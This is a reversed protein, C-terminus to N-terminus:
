RRIFSTLSKMLNVFNIIKFANLLFAYGMIFFLITMLKALSNGIFFGSVYTIIGVIIVSIFGIKFPLLLEKFYIRGLVKRSFYFNIFFSIFSTFVFGYMLLFIDQQIIGLAITISQIIKKSVELILIQKTKNFVKFIVRNMMEQIYFFSAVSLIKIYFVSGLWEEGYLLLIIDKAFVFVFSVMIGVAVAYYLAIKNFTQIFNEKECQLRALSSFGAGNISSITINNPVDQLRKAQFFYGVQSISFFKGLILSYINDFVSNLLSAFTTNVGFSYLERLSDKSFNLKGIPGEFYWLMSVIFFSTLIQIIIISWVGAGNFAFYIGIISAFFVAIFNYFSKKKFELKKELKANQTIQFSNVVFILSSVKIMRELLPDEYFVAIHASFFFFTLFLFLSVCFNFLFATSFDAQTADQKRVLAGGLGGETLVNALIIFFIVIGAQGFEKPSLVRALVINTVFAIFVYSVQGIISWLTSQVLKKSNSTM